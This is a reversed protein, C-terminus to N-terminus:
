LTLVFSKIGMGRRNSGVITNLPPRQIYAHGSAHICAPRSANLDMAIVPVKENAVAMAALDIESGGKGRKDKAVREEEHYRKHPVNLEAIILASARCM